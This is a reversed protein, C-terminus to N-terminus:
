RLLEVSCHQNCDNLNAHYIRMATQTKDATLNAITAKIAVCVIAVDQHIMLTRREWALAGM